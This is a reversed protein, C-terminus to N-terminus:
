ALRLSIPWYLSPMPPFSSETSTAPIPFPGTRSSRRFFYAMARKQEVAGNAKNRICVAWTMVIKPNTPIKLSTPRYLIHEGDERDQVGGMQLYYVGSWACNGHTHPKVYGGDLYNIFWSGTMKVRLKSRDIGRAKWCEDNATTAIETFSDCLFETLERIASSKEYFQPIIGYESEYLNANEVAARSTSNEAMYEAVFRILDEKCEEHKPFKRRLIHTPWLKFLEDDM